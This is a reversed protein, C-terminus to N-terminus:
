CGSQPLAPETLHFLPTASVPHESYLLPLQISTEPVLRETIHKIYIGLPATLWIWTMGKRIFSSCQNPNIFEGWWDSDFSFMKKKKVGLGGRVRFYIHSPQLLSENVQDVKLHRYPPYNLKIIWHQFFNWSSPPSLKKSFTNIFKWFLTLPYLVQCLSLECMNGCGQVIFFM